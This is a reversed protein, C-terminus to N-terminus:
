AAPLRRQAPGPVERPVQRRVRHLAHGAQRHGVAARRVRLLLHAHHGDVGRLQAAYHVFHPLNLSAPDEQLRPKEALLSPTLRPACLGRGPARDAVGEGLASDPRTETGGDGWLTPM